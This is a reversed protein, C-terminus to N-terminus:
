RRKMEMTDVVENITQVANIMSQCFDKTQNNWERMRENVQTQVQTGYENLLNTMQKTTEEGIEQIHARLTNQLERYHSALSEYSSSAVQVSNSMTNTIALLDQRVAALGELVKSLEETTTRYSADLSRYLAATTDVTAANQTISENINSSFEQLSSGAKALERTSAELSNGLQALVTRDSSITKQLTSGQDILSKTSKVHDEIMTTMSAMANSQQAFVNQMQAELLKTRDDQSQLVGQQHESMATMAQTIIKSQESSMSRFASDLSEMQTQQRALLSEQQDRLSSMVDTISSSFKQISEQFELTAGEMAKRQEDGEKGVHKVFETVLKALAKESSQAQMTAIEQTVKSIRDVAPVLTNSLSLELTQGIAKSLRESSEMMSTAMHEFLSQMFSDLSRQMNSGIQEALSGLIDTSDKDATRIDAFVNMVPFPSFMESLRHQLNRLHVAARAAVGKEFINFALSCSVGVVSTAFAVSAGEAIIRIQEKLQSMDGDLNLGNLGLLLGVFTGLVGIGTLLAAGLPFLRSCLISPALSIENVYYDIDQSLYLKGDQEILSDSFSKLEKNQGLIKRIEFSSSKDTIYNLSDTIKNLNTIYKISIVLYSIIFALFMLVTVLIFIMTVANTLDTISPSSSLKRISDLGPWIRESLKEFVSFFGEFLSVLSFDM